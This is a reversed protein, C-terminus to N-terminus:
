IRTSKYLSMSNTHIWHQLHFNNRLKNYLFGKVHIM